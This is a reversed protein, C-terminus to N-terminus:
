VPVSAAVRQLQAAHRDNHATGFEGVQYLSLRGFSLTLVYGSARDASLSRLAEVLRAGSSRLLDLAEARTATASPELQPFTQIKEPISMSGWAQEAFGEPALQAMPAEGTLIASLFQNTVGVHCGIQAPTWGGSNPVRQVVADDVAELQQTFSQLSKEFAAIIADIRDSHRSM